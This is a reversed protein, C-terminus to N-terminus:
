KKENNLKYRENIISIKKRYSKEMDIDFYNAIDLLYNFVDALEEELNQKNDVLDCHLKTYSRISKALEGVEETFLLFIELHNNKHWGNEECVLKIHAQFDSLTPNNKIEPIM